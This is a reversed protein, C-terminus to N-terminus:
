LHSGGTGLKHRNKNIFHECFKNSKLTKNNVQVFQSSSKLILAFVKFLRIVTKAVTIVFLLKALGTTKESWKDLPKRKRAEFL